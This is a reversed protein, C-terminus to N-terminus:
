LEDAVAKAVAKPIHCVWDGSVSYIDERSLVLDKDVEVKVLAQLDEPLEVIGRCHLTVDTVADVAIKIELGYVFNSIDIDDLYLRIHRGIGSPEDIYELRLTKLM